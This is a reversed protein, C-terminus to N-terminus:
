INTLDKSGTYDSLLLMPEYNELRGNLVELDMHVESQDLDPVFDPYIRILGNIRTTLQGHLNESVVYDQGFNEFKFLLKDINMNEIFLDPKMYIHEPDSGNFYGNMRLSGGAANMLLTDVYIYHNQTSRFKANINQFDLRHYIFHSVDLDFDMDSFPLEYLNFAEAHSAVDATSKVKTHKIKKDEPPTLNFNSLEDFDIYNAKLGLFNAHEVQSTDEGLYYSLNVDFETRGMKGHMNEITLFDDQYHFRGSFDEFRLPHVHMKTDLRDIDVDISQLNSDKYHMSSHIQLDLKEFEEHRYEEPVYNKGGYTFVDELRLLDSTLTLDLNVDGNLTDQMWFGYDHVGGNFHFDSDDLYGILDVIKLDRKDILIDAHFDHLEHPYHKLQAHLSDIFFEGSPLYKSETFAKASSKFSLGLSLDKILEDIGTSDTESYRSLEALDCVDSEIELHVLVPTNTHHVIAPLDSVFGTVSLDTEGMQADLYHLKAEKGNMTLYVDLKELPAPLDDSDLKLDVVKLEAFYAQNLESLTKEPEYLNIIDHFKMELTVNGSATVVDKLNLFRALFDLNFDTNLTMDVEPEEFNSVVISGLFAGRELKAHMDTLSFEMSSFDCLDGNTFHGKFGIEEVRKAEDRNELFAEEGGFYADIFPTQGHLSPGQVVANFYINGANNYLELTPILDEPAFAILMDFNPKTGQIELDFNMEDKTDLSGQIDFDGHEMRVGSPKFTLMGSHEDFTADTHLEFHKHHVYTKMGDKMINLVFETDIHGAILGDITSFGGKGSTMSVEVQTHTAEDFKNIHLKHLEINKLHINFPDENETENEEEFALANQLNNSGDKHLVFNFFGDELVLMEIDYNGKVLNWINFGVYIDAVDVIATADTAKSEYVQVSDVKISIYPFYEFPKLHASGLA